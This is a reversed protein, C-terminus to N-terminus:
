TNQTVFKLCKSLADYDNKGLWFSPHAFLLVSRVFLVPPRRGTRPHVWFPAIRTREGKTFPVFSCCLVRGVVLQLERPLQTFAPFNEFRAFSCFPLMGHLQEAGNRLHLRGVHSPCPQGMALPVCATCYRPPLRDPHSHCRPGNHAPPSSRGWPSTGSTDDTDCVCSPHSCRARRGTVPHQRLRVLLV